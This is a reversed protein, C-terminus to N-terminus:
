TDYKKGKLVDNVNMQGEVGIRKYWDGLWTNRAALRQNKEVTISILRDIEENLYPYNQRIMERERKAANPCFWCGDRKLGLEYLPSLFGAEKCIDLAMNETIGLTAMVSHKNGELRSLRKPEDAAIGVMQYETRNGIANKITTQKCDTFKCHGRMFAAIGYPKGNKSPNKARTYRAYALDKANKSSKVVEVLVGMRKLREISKDVFETMVPLTAAIDDTYMMRVYIVKSIPIKFKLMLLITATSDKGGSWSVVWEHKRMEEITMPQYM